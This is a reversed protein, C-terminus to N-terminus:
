FPIIVFRDMLLSPPVKILTITTKSFSNATFVCLLIHKQRVDDQLGSNKFQKKILATNLTLTEAYM